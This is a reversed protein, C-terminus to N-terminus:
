VIEYFWIKDFLIKQFNAHFVRGVIILNSHSDLLTVRNSWQILFFKIKEFSDAVTAYRSFDAIFSKCTKKAHM